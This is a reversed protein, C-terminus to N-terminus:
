KLELLSKIRELPSYDNNMLKVNSPHIACIQLNELENLFSLSTLYKVKSIQLTNLNKLNSISAGNKLNPCNWLRLTILKLHKISLGELSELKKAGEIDIKKLNTLEALGRLNVISSNTLELVELSWLKSLEELHNDQYKSVKLHKLKHCTNLNQYKNSWDLGLYELEPFNSLDFKTKIKAPLALSKINKLYYLSDLDKVNKNLVIGKIVSLDVDKIFSINDLTYEGLFALSVNDLKNIINICTDIRKSDMCITNSIGNKTKRELVRIGEIIM